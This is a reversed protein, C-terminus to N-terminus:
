HLYSILKTICVLAKAIDAEGLISFEVRRVTKFLSSAHPQRNADTMLADFIASSIFPLSLSELRPCHSGSLALCIRVLEQASANPNHRDAIITADQLPLVKDMRPLLSIAISLPLHVKVIHRPVPYDLEKGPVEFCASSSIYLDILNPHLSVFEILSDRPIDGKISAALLTDPSWIARLVCDWEMSDANPDELLITRLAGNGVMKAFLPRLAPTIFLRSTIILEELAPFAADEAICLMNLDLVQMNDGCAAHIFGHVRLSRAGCKSVAALLCSFMPTAMPEYNIVIRKPPHHLSAVFVGAAYAQRTAVVKIMSFKISISDLPVGYDSRALKSLAQCYEEDASGDIEFSLTTQSYRPMEAKFFRFGM